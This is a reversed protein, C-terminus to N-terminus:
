LMGRSKTNEPSIEYGPPRSRCDLNRRLPFDRSIIFSCSDASSTDGGGEALHNDALVEFWPIDPLQQIVEPIHQGRLGIGAGNPLIASWPKDMVVPQERIM